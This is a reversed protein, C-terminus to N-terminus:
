VGCYGGGRGGRRLGPSLQVSRRGRGACLRARAHGHGPARCHGPALGPLPLGVRVRPEAPPEPRLVPVQPHGRRERLPARVEHGGRLPGQHDACAGGGARGGAHRGPQRRPRAGDRDGERDDRPHRVQLRAPLDGHHRSGLLGGHAQHARRLGRGPVGPVEAAREQLDAQPQARRALPHLHAPGPPRPAASRQRHHGPPQHGRHHVGDEQREHRGDGHAAPEARPRGGRGRRGCQERAPQRHLRARRLVARVACEPAGQRLSRAREGGVRWVVDHAAGPGQGLHLQGPM